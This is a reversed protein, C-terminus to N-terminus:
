SGEGEKTNALRYAIINSWGLETKHRWKFGGARGRLVEHDSFRVEVMQGPVPNEGGKWEIWGGM